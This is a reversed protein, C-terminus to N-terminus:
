EISFQHILVITKLFYTALTLFPLVSYKPKNIYHIILQKLVRQSRRPIYEQTLYKTAEIHMKLNTHFKISM